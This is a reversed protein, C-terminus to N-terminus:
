SLSNLTKNMQEGTLMYDRVEDKAQSNMLLNIAEVLVYPFISGAVKEDKSWNMSELRALEKIMGQKHEEYSEKNLGAKKNSDM